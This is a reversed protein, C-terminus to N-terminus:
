RSREQLYKEYNYNPIVATVRCYKEGLLDLLSHVYGLFNFNKEIYNHANKGLEDHRYKDNLLFIIEEAMSTWNEMEM